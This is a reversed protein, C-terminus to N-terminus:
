IIEKLKDFRLVFPDANLLYIRNINPNLSQLERLDAEIEEMPSVTFPIDKYMSCFKCKNHSCGVTIQLLPTNAEFPPRYIPGTYHM